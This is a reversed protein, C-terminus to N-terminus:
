KPQESNLFNMVIICFDNFRDLYSFHGANKLVVLGSDRIHKNMTEGFCLPTEQDEEGWVLLTPAKIKPLYNILNQNVVKTFIKRLSGATKYDQSGFKMYLKELAVKHKEKPIFLLYLRKMLKFGYVKIFYKIKRKSILGGSNVLILKNVKEPYDSAFVISVRGGFSHAIINAKPIKLYNFLKILLNSYEEVGWNENPIQSEGFGPFDIAYVKFNKSLYNFVPKFSAIQGGWGHLLFVMEGEGSVEYNINLGDINVIM